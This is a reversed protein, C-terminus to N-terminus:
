LSRVPVLLTFDASAVTTGIATAMAAGLTAANANTAGAVPIATRGAVLPDIGASNINFWVYYKNTNNASNLLFYTSNLSGGFDAVLAVTQASHAAITPNAYFNLYCSITASRSLLRRYNQFLSIKNSSPNQLLLYPTESTSSIASNIALVFQNGLYAQKNYFDMISHDPVQKSTPFNFNSPITSM